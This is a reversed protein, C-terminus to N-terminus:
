DAGEVKTVKKKYGPKVCGLCRVFTTKAPGVVLVEGAEGANGGMLTFPLSVLYAATGLVTVGLMVPRVIVLDGMMAAASPKEEVVSNNAMAPNFQLSLIFALIIGVGKVASLNM